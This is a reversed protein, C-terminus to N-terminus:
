HYIQYQFSNHANLKWFIMQWIGDYQKGGPFLIAIEKWFDEENKKSQNKDCHKQLQYDTELINNSMM